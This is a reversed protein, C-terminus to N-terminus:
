NNQKSKYPMKSFKGNEDAWVKSMKGKGDNLEMYYGKKNADSVEWYSTVEQSKYDSKDFSSKLEAPVDKSWDKKTMTEIYNGKSDYRSMYQNNDNSYTGYYGDASSYWEVPMSSMNPNRTSWDKEMRQSMTGDKLRTPLIKDQQMPTTQAYVSTTFLASLLICNFYISIKKM